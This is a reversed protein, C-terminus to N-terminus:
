DWPDFVVLSKNILIDLMALFYNIGWFTWDGKLKILYPNELKLAYSTLIRRSSWFIEWLKSTRPFALLNKPVKSSFFMFSPSPTVHNFIEIFVHPFYGMESTQSLPSDTPSFGKLNKDRANSFSPANQLKSFVELFKGSCRLRLVIMSWSLLIPTASLDTSLCTPLSSLNLHVLYSFSDKSRFNPNWMIDIALSRQSRLVRRIFGNKQHPFLVMCTLPLIRIALVLYVREWKPHNRQCPKLGM